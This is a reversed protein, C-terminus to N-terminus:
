EDGEEGERQLEERRLKPGERIMDRFKREESLRSRRQKMVVDNRLGLYDTAKEAAIVLNEEFKGRPNEAQARQFMSFLIPEKGQLHPANNKIYETAYERYYEGKDTQGKMVDRYTAAMPRLINQRFEVDDILEDLDDYESGADSAISDLEEESLGAMELKRKLGEYKRNELREKVDRELEDDPVIGSVQMDPHVIADEM